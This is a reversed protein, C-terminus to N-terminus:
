VGTENSTADILSFLDPAIPGPDRIKPHRPVSLAISFGFRAGASTNSAKLYAQQAWTQGTRQFVYAAGADTVSNDNQNGNVGTAASDEGPAGVALTDGSLTLSRGFLDADNANSARISAQQTWRTGSRQFVYVAGTHVVGDNSDGPAGRGAHRRVARRPEAPGPAIRSAKLYAQQSWDDRQAQVRPLM